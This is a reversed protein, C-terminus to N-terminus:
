ESFPNFFKDGGFCAPCRTQLERACRAIPLSPAQNIGHNALAKNPPESSVIDRPSSTNHSEVVTSIASKQAEHVMANVAAQVRRDVLLRLTDHWQM